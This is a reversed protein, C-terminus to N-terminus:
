SEVTGIICTMVQGGIWITGDDDREVHVRGSRALV